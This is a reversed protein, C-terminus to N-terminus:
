LNAGKEILLRRFRRIRIGAFPHYPNLEPDRREEHTLQRWILDPRTEWAALWEPSGPELKM